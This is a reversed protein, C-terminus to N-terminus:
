PKPYGLNSNSNPMALTVSINFLATSAVQVGFDSWIMGESAITALCVNSLGLDKLLEIFDELSVFKLFHLLDLPDADVMKLEFVLGVNSDDSAEDEEDIDPENWVVDVRAYQPRQQHIISPPEPMARDHFSCLRGCTGMLGKLAHAARQIARSVRWIEHQISAQGEERNMRRSLSIADATGPFFVLKSEPDRPPGYVLHKFWQRGQLGEPDLFGREAFMLRDNLMRKKLESINGLTEQERLKRANKNSEFGRCDIFLLQACSVPVVWDVEAHPSVTKRTKNHPTTLKYLSYLFDFISVRPPGVAAHSAEVRRGTLQHHGLEMLVVINEKTNWDPARSSMGTTGDSSLSHSPAHRYADITTDTLLSNVGGYGKNAIAGLEPASFRRARLDRCSPLSWSKQLVMSCLAEYRVKAEKHAENAAAAFEQLQAAYSLYNLPLIPDDALQLAVLGWVGAIASFFMSHSSFSRPLKSAVHRQFLPDGMSQWGTIPTLLLTISRFIHGHTRLTRCLSRCLYTAESPADTSRLKINTMAHFGQDLLGSGNGRGYYLDISPVGAHQVFPAFDSDVGALRQINVGKNTTKWTMYLTMGESDPDKVKKTVEVLLDDLQPTAGAYFGPGQVACDVNLYAVAKSGLNVLNQEVWETSGIMGFEEADWSCLVITRRSTWGLRLLLAYRRAIDLLAATGSNPDFLEMLGHM